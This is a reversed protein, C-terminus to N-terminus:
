RSLGALIEPANYLAIVAGILTADITFAAPTLAIQKARRNPDRYIPLSYPDFKEGSSYLTFADDDKRAVAGMGQSAVEGASEAVPIPILSGGKSEDIFHPKHGAGIKEANAMLWYSRHRVKSNHENFEDYRM